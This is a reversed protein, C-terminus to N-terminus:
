TTSKIPTINGKRLCKITYYVEEISSFDSPVELYKIKERPYYEEDRYKELNWKQSLEDANHELYSKREESITSFDPLKIEYM